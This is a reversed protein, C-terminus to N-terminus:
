PVTHKLLLLLHNHYFYMHLYLNLEAKSHQDMHDTRYNHHVEEWKGWSPSPTYNHGLHNYTIDKDQYSTALKFSSYTNRFYIDIRRIHIFIIFYKHNIINRAGHHLM